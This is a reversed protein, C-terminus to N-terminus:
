GRRVGGAPDVAIITGQTFPLPDYDITLDRLRVRQCAAVHFCSKRPDAVVIETKTGTGRVVLDTALHIEFCTREGEAGIVRYVGEDFVVQVPGDWAVAERLARRVPEIADTTGDAVAGYDAVFFAKM